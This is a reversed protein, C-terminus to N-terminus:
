RHLPWLAVSEIDNDDRSIGLVYDTGIDTPAFRAPFACDALWRGRADFVSWRSPAANTRLPHMTLGDEAAFNRVWVDGSPGLLLQSYAPYSTAFKAAAAVRERHVRLAGEYRSSGDPQRGAQRDRFARRDRESVTRSPVDRRLRLRARGEADGCWIEYRAPYGTCIQQDRAVALTPPAFGLSYTPPGGPKLAYGPALPLARLQRLTSDSLRLRALWLSDHRLSAVTSLSGGRLLFTLDDAGIAGTALGFTFGPVRPIRYTRLWSGNPLFQHVRRQDVVLLTDRARLLQDIDTLEGPGGGRGGSSGLHVGEPTFFRLQRTAGDAVVIAGTSLRVAGAIESFETAGQGRAGGIRVTPRPGVRWQVPASATSPYLVDTAQSPATAPCVLLLAVVRMPLM